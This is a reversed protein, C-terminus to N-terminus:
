DIDDSLDMSSVSMEELDAANQDPNVSETGPITSNGDLNTLKEVPNASKEDSTASVEDPGAPKEDTDSPKQDIIVLKTDPDVIIEDMDLVLPAYPAAEKTRIFYRGPNRQSYIGLRETDKTCSMGFIKSFFHRMRGTCKVGSFIHGNFMAEDFYDHSLAHSCFPTICGPQALGGNVIFNAHGCDKHTGLAGNCTHICQVYNADKESLRAGVGYDWPVTFGPGAPDM